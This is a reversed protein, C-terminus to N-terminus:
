PLVSTVTGNVYQMIRLAEKAALEGNDDLDARAFEEATLNLRDNVAMLLMLADKLEVLGNGDVDGKESAAVATQVIVSYPEEASGKYTSTIGDTAELYYELGAVTIDEASIVASYKDNNNTMKKFKWTDTGTIRYYLTAASIGVNDTVTASIILNNGTFAQHIPSHYINPAMTDMATVQVKGSPESESMDSEVVTFNYYYKQGPEITDDFWEKTDAPIVTTNVKDYFGDETTSRYVNYGALTEFEDQEWTLKIGTETVEAQMSLSQAMSTDIKFPFRGWDTYLKLSTGAAKGNSVSWYQYGNEIMTTLQMTGKWQRPTEYSGSVEYDAYPYSSGFKVSLDISTDMDRNFEVVFTVLDNGIVDVEEGGLELYADVVFPFTDEPAETLIVGENIDALSQYDDFDLIQKNILEKNTTGWYNGGLGITVISGDDSSSEPATFRLWTSTEDDSLRNLIVNSHFTTNYGDAVFQEWLALIEETTLEKRQALKEEDVVTEHVEEPTETDGNETDGNETDENETDEEDGKETSDDGADAVEAKQYIFTLTVEENVVESYMTTLAKQPITLTYTEGETLETRPTIVLKDLNLSKNFTVGTGNSDQLRINGYASGKELSQSYDLVIKTDSLVTAGEENEAGNWSELELSDANNKLGFHIQVPVASDESKGNAFANNEGEGIGYLKGDATQLYLTRGIDFIKEVNETKTVGTYTSYDFVSDSFHSQIYLKGNEIYYQYDSTYYENPYQKEYECQVAGNWIREICREKDVYIENSWKGCINIDKAGTTVLETETVGDGAVYVEKNETLFATVYYTNVVKQIRANLSVLVPRSQYNKTEDGLQGYGNYGWAWVAGDKAIAFYSDSSYVGASFATINELFKSNQCSLEGTYTYVGIDYDYNAGYQKVVGDKDLIYLMSGNVMFDKVDSVQIQTPYSISEGWVWLTGDELLAFTQNDDYVIKQVMHSTFEEETVVVSVVASLETGALTAQLTAMGEQLKVLTGSEDVYCIEPNSSEWTLNQNTADAPTIQPYFETGDEKTLNTIYVEDAFVVKEAPIEVHVTIAAEIGNYGKATIVADGVAKATIIGKENVVAVAENSSTYTIERKTTYSPTYAISLKKTEDKALTIDGGKIALGELDVAESVNITVYNYVAYDPAYVRVSTTGSGVPTVKGNADVTVVSTDQSEYILKSTDATSPTLTASIQYSSDMDLNVLYGELAIDTVYIDNQLEMICRDYRDYGCYIWLEKWDSEHNVYSLRENKVTVYKNDIPVETGDYNYVKGNKWLFGCCYSEYNGELNELVYNLEEATQFSALEGGLLQAFHEASKQDAFGTMTIYTSGTDTNKFNEYVTAEGVNDSLGVSSTSGAEDGDSDSDWYNNNGYFVCNSYSGAEHFLINSDVFICREYEGKYIWFKNYDYDWRGGLKYFVSDQVKTAEIYGFTSNWRVTGSDLYRYYIDDKYTQTFECNSAEDITLYPNTVNTYEMSIYGNGSHYIEVRYADMWGSPFMEIPEEETGKCILNGAVKLYTIATDAYSDEPDSCWFQIQTGAEVTVTAGEMIIMSNPIIYYNEKTLTMDETVKNPLITGRRVTLLIQEKKDKNSYVTTDNEDLGNNYTITVNLCISYDNPCNDAIKIYFPKEWGNWMEGDESYLKGSDNESYTGVSSYDIDNNLFTVYPNDVGLDSTADIHVTTNKSMGWRNKLTMGLAITEGADVVGDGNNKEECGATLGETDATFGQTDFVTYDSVGIDPVPLTTLSEYFNVVGPINHPLGSVTHKEPNCCQVIDDTTGVIQGYIFKTPYTDTDSYYSRLLAAQAAVVPAAMSTGSLKGYRDGPLTSLIQEGPAYVEYEVSNYLYADWNTFSSEVMTSGVSMVGIVYSFAAPYSPLPLYYYDTAEDPMGDNGAAAVLVCRSYAVALADQVAISSAMGGFSMNIVDAGQEYAYIIAEAVNSQMFYGSADGAKIAMIKTNYALGVIGEKNNSAGIIGAVHTGHGNDDMGSGYGATMDVGYYDDVFGNGDDDIGNDPIEGSNVWMNAKLDTHTYDVGTDIVAVTVSSSGGGSGTKEKVVQWGKRIGFEDKIWQETYSPNEIVDAESAEEEATTEYKFNYEAMEVGSVARVAEMAADIDVAKKLYAVYWTSDSVEFMLEMKGIGANKLGEATAESYASKVKVLLTNDAYEVEGSEFVDPYAIDFPEKLNGEEDTVDEAVDKAKADTKTEKKKNNAEILVTVLDESEKADQGDALEEPAATEEPEESAATEKTEESDAVKGSIFNVEYNIEEEDTDFVYKKNDAKTKKKEYSMTKVSASEKEAVTASGGGSNKQATQEEGCGAFLSMTMTVSLMIALFRKRRM